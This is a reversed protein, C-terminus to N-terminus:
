EAVDVKIPAPLANRAGVDDCADLGHGDWRSMGIHPNARVWSSMQLGGPPVGAPALLVAIVCPPTPYAVFALKFVHPFNAGRQWSYSPFDGGVETELAPRLLLYQGQDHALEIM